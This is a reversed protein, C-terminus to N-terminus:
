GTTSFSVQGVYQPVRERFKQSYEQPLFVRIVDNLSFDLNGLIRWEREFYLNGPHDSPLTPDFFMMFSFIHRSLEFYLELQGPVDSNRQVFAHYEQFVEEFYKGLPVDEGSQLREITGSPSPTKSRSICSTTPIYFVPRGGRSIIFNKDFALGFRSYKNMHLPLDDIPIDCFCVMQSNFMENESIKANPKLFLNGSINRTHPRHSLFGECIIKVLLGYQDEESRGKGVFHTLESSIYRQM